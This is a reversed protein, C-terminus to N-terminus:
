FISRGLSSSSRPKLYPSQCHMLDNCYEDDDEQQSEERWPRASMMRIGHVISTDVTDKGTHDNADNGVGGVELKVENRQVVFAVRQHAIFFALREDPDNLHFTGAFCEFLSNRQFAKRAARDHAHSDMGPAVALRGSVSAIRAYELTRFAARRFRTHM